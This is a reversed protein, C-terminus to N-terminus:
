QTCIALRGSACACAQPCHHISPVASNNAPRTTGSAVVRQGAVPDLLAGLRSRWDYRKALWGDIGDSFGAIFFLILALEFRDEAIYWLIPAVLAIRMLSIANPLWRLVQSM